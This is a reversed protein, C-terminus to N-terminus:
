LMRRSFALPCSSSAAACVSAEVPSVAQTRPRCRQLGFEYAANSRAGAHLVKRMRVCPLALGNDFLPLSPGLVEYGSSRYFPVANLAADLTLIRVARRVASGEVAALLREGIKRGSQEPHVYLAELEDGAMRAFGVIRKASEAVLIIRPSEISGDIKAPDEDAIWADVQRQTYPRGILTTVAAKLVEWTAPADNSAAKHITVPWRRLVLPPRTINSLRHTQVIPPFM